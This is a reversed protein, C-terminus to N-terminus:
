EVIKAQSIEHVSSGSLSCDMPNCITPCSKTVLGGGGGGLAHHSTDEYSSSAPPAWACFPIVKHLHLLLTAIQRDRLSPESHDLGAPM